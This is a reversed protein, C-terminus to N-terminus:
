KLLNNDEYINWIIVRYEIRDLDEFYNEWVKLYFWVVKTTFWFDDPNLECEWYKVEYYIPYWGNKNLTIDGEYIETWHLDKLGTWQMLTITSLDRTVFDWYEVEIIKWEEFLISHVPYIKNLEKDWARYKITEM